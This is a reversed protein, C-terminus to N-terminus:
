EREDGLRISRVVIDVDAAANREEEFRGLLKKRIEM